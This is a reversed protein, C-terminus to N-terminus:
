EILNFKESLARLLQNSQHDQFYSLEQLSTYSLAHAKKSIFALMGERFQNKRLIWIQDGHKWPAELSQAQEEDIILPIRIQAFHIMESENWPLFSSGALLIVKTNQALSELDVQFPLHIRNLNEHFDNRWLHRKRVPYDGWDKVAVEVHSDLQLLTKLIVNQQISWSAISFPFLWYNHCQPKAPILHNRESILQRNLSLLPTHSWINLPTQNEFLPRLLFRSWSDLYCHISYSFNNRPISRILSALTSLAVLEKTSHKETLIFHYLAPTKQLLWPSLKVVEWPSLEDFCQLVEVKDSSFSLSDTKKTLVAVEYYDQTTVIMQELMPTWSPAVIILHYQSM